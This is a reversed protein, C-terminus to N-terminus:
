LNFYLISITLYMYFIFGRSSKASHYTESKAPNFIREKGKIGAQLYGNKAITKHPKIPDYLFQFIGQFHLILDLGQNLRIMCFNFNYHCVYRTGSLTQNLRIMYFNTMDPRLFPDKEWVGVFDIWFILWRFLITWLVRKPFWVRKNKTKFLKGVRGKM